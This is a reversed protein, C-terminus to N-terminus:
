RLTLRGPGRPAAVFHLTRGTAEDALRWLHGAFTGVELHDGPRLVGRPSPKGEFDMWELRVARASVNHLYLKAPQGSRPSRAPDPAAALLEVEVADGPALSEKGERFRGLWEREPQPFAFRPARGADLGKLHESPPQRVAPKVYRWPGEGFVEACLRALAPDYDRLEARTNVHNHEADNERNTDFWSQAGEAWYESHNSRAYTGKWLGARASADFAAALRKDFTPDLRSLAMGHIAHAFEHILINERAYPDGPYGLLNEEGCSVAPRQRTAGLGRARGNWYLRPQLDRHEPIDTTFETPAMVVFRVKNTALARLVEPRLATMQGILYAAERLAGASVKASGVVSFGGVDVHQTYFAPLALSLRVADPPASVAGPAAALACWGCGAM